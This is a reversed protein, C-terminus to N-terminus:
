PSASLGKLDAMIDKAFEEEEEIPEFFCGHVGGGQGVFTLVPALQYDCSSPISGHIFRSLM